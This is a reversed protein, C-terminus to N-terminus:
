AGHSCRKRRLKEKLVPIWVLGVVVFMLGVSLCASAVSRTEEATGSSRLILLLAAGVASVLAGMVIAIIPKHLYAWSPTVAPDAHPDSFLSQRM